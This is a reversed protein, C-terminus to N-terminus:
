NAARYLPVFTTKAKAVAAEANVLGSGMQNQDNPTLPTATSKLIDRVQAPTLNKNAARVLAAVGSVHPTAMSTGQFSAFDTKVVGISAKATGGAALTAKAAEGVTQEIMVVPISVESGDDTLAGQILGPANNYVVIGAAGAAIANAAKDKFTIEGRQILAFKGAVKIGNFDEPKGLNAYVLDNQAIATVPSGVFTASKVEDLGKGDGIDMQVSSARGTGKPVSSVVDVGPAVVGLEPGWNSFDAKALNIDIAGVALATPLAAPFSVTGQGDNGSAAVVTVGAAEAANMATTEGTTTYAGGLSMSVVDVKEQVAWDLGEAIALSSCGLDTCVKGMLLKAGPAVGVLGNKGDALITGSVHTGHGVLDTVDNVDGGTFNQVAEIQNVLVQHTKDVGTDLVMVRAGAGNTTAWAQPAKVATIGWPTGPANLDDSTSVDGNVSHTAIPKPAPFMVEQEVLAIEPRTRLSAIVLADDSEVVMMHLHNLTNTVRASTNFLRMQSAGVGNTDVGTFASVAQAASAFAAPSKFQVLYRKAEAHASLAFALTAIIAGINTAKRTIM